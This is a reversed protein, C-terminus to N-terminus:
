SSFESKGYKLLSHSGLGVFICMGDYYNIMATKNQLPKVQVCIMSTCLATFYYKIVFLIKDIFNNKMEFRDGMYEQLTMHYKVQRTM